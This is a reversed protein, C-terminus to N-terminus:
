DSWKQALKRLVALTIDEGFVLTSVDSWFYMERMRWGKPEHRANAATRRVIIKILLGRV